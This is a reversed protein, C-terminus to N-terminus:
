KKIKKINDIIASLADLEDIDCETIIKILDNFDVINKNEQCDSFFNNTTNNSNQDISNNKSNDGIINSSQVKNELLYDISVNYYDALYKLSSLKPEEKDNEWKSIKSRNFKIDKEDLSVMVSLESCLKELTIGKELRLQKIKKGLSM